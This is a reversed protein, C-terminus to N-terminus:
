KKGDTNTKKNNKKCSTCPKKATTKRKTYKRKPKIPEEIEGILELWNSPYKSFLKIREKRLKLFEIALEDTLTSNSITISSGKKLKYIVSPKALEFNVVKYHKKLFNLMNQIDSPCSTCVNRKTLDKYDDALVQIYEKIIKNSSKLIEQIEM